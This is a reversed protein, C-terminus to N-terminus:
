VHARGIEPTDTLFFFNARNFYYLHMELEWDWRRGHGDEDGAHARWLGGVAEWRGEQRRGGNPAARPPGLCAPTM